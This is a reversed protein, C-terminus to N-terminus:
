VLRREGPAVAEALTGPARKDFDKQNVRAFAWPEGTKEAIRACWDRIAADKAETGEWVRGKTEVIWNREGDATGQVVVWDPFYFGIAGSPKLYDVKFQTGAGGQETTGLSAFRVVDAARDLFQAFRREFPNFTAVYNFITKEAELPPLDRRWSFALTESLRHRKRRLKLPRREVTLNSIERALRSAIAERYAFERLYNRIKESDVDVEGRSTSRRSRGSPTSAM